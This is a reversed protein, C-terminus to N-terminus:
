LNVGLWDLLQADTKVKRPPKPLPRVMRRREFADADQRRIRYRPRGLLKTAMNTAALEGSKIWALIRHVDVRWERALEPPTLTDSIGKSM